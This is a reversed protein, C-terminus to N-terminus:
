SLIPLSDVVDKSDIKSYVFLKKVIRLILITYKFQYELKITNKLGVFIIYKFFSEEIQTHESKANNWTHQQKNNYIFKNQSIIYQQSLNLSWFSSNSLVRSTSLVKWQKQNMRAFM